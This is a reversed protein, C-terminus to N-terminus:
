LSLLHALNNKFEQVDDQGFKKIENRINSRVLKKYFTSFLAFNKTFQEKSVAFMFVYSVESFEWHVPKSLRIIVLKTEKVFDPNGHPIAIAGVDTSSINEREVVSQLYQESVLGEKYLGGVAQELVENRSDAQELDLVTAQMVAVALSNNICHLEIFRSIQKLENQALLPTVYIVPVKHEIINETSVILTAPIDELQAFNQMSITDVIEIAHFVRQLKAAILSAAAMGYHCVVLVRIKKEGNKLREIGAQFHLTLYTMEDNSVKYCFQQLLVEGAITAMEFGLPYQYRIDDWNYDLSFTNLQNKRLVTTYLHVSLGKLLEHDAKFDVALRTYIKDFIDDVVGKMELVFSNEDSIKQKRLIMFLYCIYFKENEKSMNLLCVIEEAAKLYALENKVGHVIDSFTTGVDVVKWRRYSSQMYVVHLFFQCVAEDTFSFDKIKQLYKIVDTGRFIEELEIYQLIPFHNTNFRKLEDMFDIGKVYPEMIEVFRSRKELQSGISRIGYHRVSHLEEPYKKLLAAVVKEMLSKSVYLADAMDQLTSFDDQMLVFLMTQKELSFEMMMGTARLMYTIHEFGQIRLQNGPLIEIKVGYTQMFEHMNQLDSKITQLSVDLVEAIEKIGAKPNENIYKILNVQRRILKMVEGGDAIMM